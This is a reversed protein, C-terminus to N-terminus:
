RCWSASKNVSNYLNESYECNVCMIDRENEFVKKEGNWQSCDVSVAIPQILEFTTAATKKANQKVSVCSTTVDNTNLV